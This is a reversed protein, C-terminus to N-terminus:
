DLLRRAARLLEMEKERRDAWFADSDVIRCSCVKMHLDVHSLDIYLGCGPCQRRLVGGHLAGAEGVFRPRDLNELIGSIVRAESSTLALKVAKPEPAQADPKVFLKKFDFM